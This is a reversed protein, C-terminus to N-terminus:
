TTELLVKLTGPRRSHEFAELGRELPYRADILSAVEVEGSALWALARPFPGCRSGVLRIEDVVVRGADLPARGRYTSKLVLTGRARLAALGVELGAPDGTCEVAVDYAGPPVAEPALARVTGPPLRERKNPHRVVVDVTDCLRALVRAVLQGLRGAGVVLVRHHRELGIEDVVELAAALPEVLAAAENPISPPVAHLNAVPLTLYDAFAGPRGRIGLATRRLCHKRGGRRCEQCQGCALNIEGVVRAGMWEEPGAEVRGVFEHGLIGTFPYLGAVLGLDTGCVGAALVRVLAEGEAAEPPPVDDRFTLEGDELWLARM